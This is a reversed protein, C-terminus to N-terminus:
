SIAKSARKAFRRIAQNADTWTGSARDFQDLQSDYWQYRLTGLTEGGAGLLEGSIEAGGNGFSQFSLNPQSSLQRFTPRNNKVDELVVRLTVPATDSVSLGRKGLDDTLEERLEELLEALDEEGYLGNNAFGSRLSRSGSRLAMDRPLNEARYALSESLQIDLRVADTVRRDIDAEFGRSGAHAPASALAFLAAAAILTRTHRTM